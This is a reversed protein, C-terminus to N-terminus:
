LSGMRSTATQVCRRYLTCSTPLMVITLGTWTTSADCYMLMNCRCDSFATIADDPM